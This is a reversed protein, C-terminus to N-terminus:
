IFLSYYCHIIHIGNTRTRRLGEEKRILTFYLSDGFMESVFKFLMKGSLNVM